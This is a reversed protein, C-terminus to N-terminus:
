KKQPSAKDTIRTIVIGEKRLIRLVDNFLKEDKGVTECFLMGQGQIRGELLMRAMTATFLATIKQMSNLNENKGSFSRIQWCIKTNGSAGITIEALSVNDETKRELLNKTVALSEKEFMGYNHLYRFMHSFGLPRINRYTFTPIKLDRTLNEFGSQAYYTESSIGCIIEERYGGFPPFNVKRGRIKQWSPLLFELVLDEFCWLFPFYFRKPSLSGAKVEIEKIASNVAIERGLILNVLGPCFGCGPIVKIKKREAAAKNQLYFDTDLDSLDILDKGYRLALKLSKEGLGGPLVGVLVDCSRIQSEDTLFATENGLGFKKFYVLLAKSIRGSGIIRIRM